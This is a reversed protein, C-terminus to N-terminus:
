QRVIYTAHVVVILSVIFRRFSRILRELQPRLRCALEFCEIIEVIQIYRLLAEELQRSCILITRLHQAKNLWVPVVILPLLIWGDPQLVTYAHKVLAPLRRHIVLTVVVVAELQCRLVLYFLLPLRALAGFFALHM